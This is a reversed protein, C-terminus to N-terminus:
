FILTEDQKPDILVIEGRDALNKALRVLASQADECERVRVPGMAAIDGLMMKAARETMSALFLDRMAEDAGKLALALTKKDAQKVLTAIAAPLLNGLDAFTFMLARIRTAADPAAQDLEALMAEETQRDLANFLEAMAEFPDRRRSRALNQMFEHRLTNEIEGLVDKEVTDATLMRQVVDVAFPRPLAALVRAGHDTKLRSIIVAATQPHEHRLYSALMTESVNSLKDWMTRGAPGRIDELIDKIMADPLVDRLLRETTEFSGHMSAMSSVDAAFRRLLYEVARAPVSGLQAMAASLEKVEDRGLQEWMPAGHDRGLALMLAAARQPGTLGAVEAPEIPMGTMTGAKTM